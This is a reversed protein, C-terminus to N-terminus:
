KWTALDSSGNKIRMKRLRQLASLVNEESPNQSIMSKHNEESCRNRRLVKQQIM